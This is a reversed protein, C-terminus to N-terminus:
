VISLMHCSWTREIPLADLILAGLVVAQVALSIVCPLKLIVAFVILLHVLEVGSTFMCPAYPVSRLIRLADFGIPRYLLSNCRSLKNLLRTLATTLRSHYGMMVVPRFWQFDHPQALYVVLFPVSLRFLLRHIVTNSNMYILWQSYVM